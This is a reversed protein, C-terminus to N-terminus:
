FKEIKNKFITNSFPFVNKEGFHKESISIMEVDEVFIKKFSLKDLEKHSTMNKELNKKKQSSNKQSKLNKAKLYRLAAKRTKKWLGLTKYVKKPKLWFFCCPLYKKFVDRFDNLQEIQERLMSLILKKGVVYIFAVNMILMISYSLYVLSLFTNNYAFIAFFITLYCIVNSAVDLQNLDPTKYPKQYLLVMFYFFITLLILMGKLVKQSDFFSLFVIIALKEFMKAFEWYYCNLNYESYLFGYKIKIDSSPLNYRSKYLGWFILFPLFFAWILLAPLSCTMSYFIHEHTYCEYALDAKVYPKNGYTECSLMSILITVVNPQLYIVVFFAATYFIKPRNKMLKLLVLIYCLIIFLFLYVFPTLFAILAKIYIFPPYTIMDVIFCDTSYLLAETPNGVTDPFVNLSTPLTLDFSTVCSVIQFYTMFIKLYISTQQDKKKLFAFGLNKFIKTKNEADIMTVVGKVSLGISIVNFILLGILISINFELQSCQGCVYQTKKAWRQGWVTGYMDCSGCVAGIHGLSCIHTNNDIEGICLDKTLQCEEIADTGNDRRWYYKKVKIVNPECIAMSNFDCSKCSNAGTVLNYFGAPCTDCTNATNDHYEGIECERFHINFNYSYTTNTIASTQVQITYNKSVNGYFILNLFSFLGTSQVQISTSDGTIGCIENTQNSKLVMEITLQIEEEFIEIARGDEDYLQFDINPNEFGSQLSQFYDYTPYRLAIEVPSSYIKNGFLLAQNKEFTSATIQYISYLNYFIAGGVGASNNIFSSSKLSVNSKITSLSEFFIAGGKNPIVGYTYNYLNSSTNKYQSIDLKNVYNNLFNLNSLLIMGNYIYLAGGFYEAMNEKFDSDMIFINEISSNISKYICIAGAIVAKNLIFNSNKISLNSIEETIYVFIAGGLCSSCSNNVFTCNWFEIQNTPSLITILSFESYNFPWWTSIQSWSSLFNFSNSIFSSNTINILQTMDQLYFLGTEGFNNNEFVSNIISLSSNKQYIMSCDCMINLISLKEIKVNFNESTLFMQFFNGINSLLIMDITKNEVIVNFLSIEISIGQDMYFISGSNGAYCDYFNTNNIVLVLQESKGDFFICGGKNMSILNQFISNTIYLNSSQKAVLVFDIAGSDTLSLLNMFTCQNVTTQISTNTNGQMIFGGTNDNESNEFKSNLLTLESYELIGFAAPSNLLMNLINQNTLSHNLYNPLQYKANSIFADVIQIYQSSIYINPPSNNLIYANITCNGNDTNIFIYIASTSQLFSYENTDLFNSDFSTSKIEIEYQLDTTFKLVSLIDYNKPQLYNYSFDSKEITINGVGTLSYELTGLSIIPNSSVFYKVTVSNMYLLQFNQIYIAITLIPSDLPIRLYEPRQLYINVLYVSPISEIYIWSIESSKSCSINQLTLSPLEQNLLNFFAVLLTSQYFDNFVIINEIKFMKQGGSNTSSSSKLYFIHMEFYFLFYNGIFLAENVIEFNEITGDLNNVLITNDVFSVHIFINNMLICNQLAINYGAIFYESGSGFSFTVNNEKMIFNSFNFLSVYITLQIFYSSNFNNEILSWNPLNINTSQSASSSIVILDMTYVSNNLLQVDSILLSSLINQDQVIKIFFFRTGVSTLFTSSFTMNKINIAIADTIFIIQNASFYHLRDLIINKLEIQVITDFSILYGNYTEQYQFYDRSIVQINEINVSKINQIFIQFNCPYGPSNLFILNKIVISTFGIFKLGLSYEVNVLNGSINEGIFALNFSSLYYQSSSPAWNFENASSINCQNNRFIFTLNVEEVVFENLLYYSSGGIYFYFNVIIQLIDPFNNLIITTENMTSMNLSCDVYITKNIFSKCGQWDYPCFRCTQLRYDYVYNNMKRYWSFCHTCTPTNYYDEMLEPYYYTNKKAPQYDCRSCGLKCGYCLTNSNDVDYIFLKPSFQFFEEFQGNLASINTQNFFPNTIEAYKLLSFLEQYISLINSNYQFDNKQCQTCNLYSENVKVFCSDPQCYELGSTCQSSGDIFNLYPFSCSNKNYITYNTESSPFDPVQQLLNELKFQLSQNQLINAVNESNNSITVEEYMANYINLFYYNCFMNFLTANLVPYTMINYYNSPPCLMCFLFKGVDFDFRALLSCNSNQNQLAIYDLDYQDSSNTFRSLYSPLIGIYENGNVDVFIPALFYCIGENWHLISQSQSSSTNNFNTNNPVYYNFACQVCFQSDSETKFYCKSCFIECAKCTKYSGVISSRIVGYGDSCNYCYLATNSNKRDNVFNSNADIIGYDCRLCNSDITNCNECMTGDLSLFYGEDNCIDCFINLEVTLFFDNMLTPNQLLEIQKNTFNVTTNDSDFYAYHCYICGVPCPDCTTFNQSLVYQQPCQSYLFTFNNQSLMADYATENTLFQVVFNDNIINELKPNGFFPSFPISDNNLSICQYYQNIIQNGFCSFNILMLSSTFNRFQIISGNGYSTYDILDYNICFPGQDCEGCSQNGLSSATIYFGYPCILCM